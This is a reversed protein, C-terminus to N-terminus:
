QLSEAILLAQDLTLDGAVAYVLDNEEWTLLVRSGDEDIYFTGSGGRVEISEAEAPLSISEATTGQAITFSGGEPLTYRQVIAGQVELIDVLTAGEPLETPALIEFEASNTAEELSLSQPALDAFGMVEAGPPTQFTFLADDLGNNLELSTVTVRAEGLTGGTYEFSLPVSRAKDIWVNLLGGVAIFETPMQEAIPVFELLYASDSGITETGKNDINFYEMLLQIAEEASEPHEFDGEDIDGMAQKEAFFDSEEAMQMAEELTGTLVKNETPDYAWLTEGDSVVVAGAFKADSTELVELRFAGPRDEGKQGWIEVTGSVQQEVTDLNFEVVAHTDTITEMSEITQLLLDEVSPQLALFGVLLASLLIVVVITSWTKKNNV